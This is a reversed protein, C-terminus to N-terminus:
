DATLTFGLALNYEKNRSELAHEELLVSQHNNQKPKPNNQKRKTNAGRDQFERAKQNTPIFCHLAPTAWLIHHTM